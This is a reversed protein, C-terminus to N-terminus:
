TNGSFVILPSYVGSLFIVCVISSAAFVGNDSISGASKLLFNVPDKEKSLFIRSTAVSLVRIGSKPSIDFALTLKFENLFTDTVIVFKRFLKVLMTVDIELKESARLLSGSNSPPSPAFSKELILVKKLLIITESLIIFVLKLDDSVNVFSKIAFIFVNWEKFSGNIFIPSTKASNSFIDVINFPFAANQSLKSFANGCSPGKPM